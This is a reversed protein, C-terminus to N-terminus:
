LKTMAKVIARNYGEASREPTLMTQAHYRAAQGMQQRLEPSDILRRLAAAFEPTNNPDIVIGTTGDIVADVTAGAFQTVIMPLGAAAAEVMVLGFVESLSPFLLLDAMAYFRPLETKQQYGHMFVQEQLGYREVAQRLKPEDEGSGVIHLAIDSRNLAAVAVVMQLIGKWLLLHGVFLLHVAFPEGSKTVFQNRHKTAQGNNRLVDVCSVFFQTDVINIAIDIKYTPVNKDLFYQYAAKGYAIFGQGLKYFPIRFINRLWQYNRKASDHTEGSYVIVPIKNLRCYLLVGLAVRDMAWALVVSLPKLLKIREVVGQLEKKKDGVSWSLEAFDADTLQWERRRRSKGLFHIHLRIGGKLLEKQFARYQPLRYPTPANTIHLVTPQSM